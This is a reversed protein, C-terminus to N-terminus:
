RFAQVLLSLGNAVHGLSLPNKVYLGPVPSSTYCTRNMLGVEGDFVLASPYGYYRTPSGPRSSPMSGINTSSRFKRRAVTSLAGTVFNYGVDATLASLWGSIPLFWDVVFSYRTTEWVIELPNILGLSSLEALVPNSMGYVLSVHCKQKDDFYVNCGTGVSVDLRTTSLQYFFKTIDANGTEATVIVYPIQYRSRRVMHNMAGYIDSMLPKWGYQLELWAGPIKCWQDKALSGTETSIVQLWLKPNNKRFKNVQSAISNASNAVMEFTKRSEAIFNGVHVDQSKLKNLAKVVTANIMNSSPLSPLGPDLSSVGSGDLWADVGAVYQDIDATPSYYIWRFGKGGASARMTGFTRNWPRCKRFGGIMDSNGSAPHIDYHVSTHGNGILIPSGGNHTYKYPYVDRIVDGAAPYSMLDIEMALVHSTAFGITGTV